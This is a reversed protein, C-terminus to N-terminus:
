ITNIFNSQLLKELKSIRKLALRLEIKASCGTCKRNIPYHDSATMLELNEIRNDGKVGNKHHVVEYSLLPRGIHRAMVLRHEDVSNRGNRCMIHMPDDPEVYIAVYGRLDVSRGGKWKSCKAGRKDLRGTDYALKIRESLTRSPINFYKFYPIISKPHCNLIPAIEAMTLKEDWYLRRLEEPNINYKKDKGM